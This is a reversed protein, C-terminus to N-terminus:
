DLQNLMYRMGINQHNTIHLKSFKFNPLFQRGRSRKDVPLQLYYLCAVEVKLSEISLMDDVMCPAAEIQILDNEIKFAIYQGYAGESTHLKLDAASHKQLLNESVNTDYKFGSLSFKSSIFIRVTSKGFQATVNPTRLKYSSTSEELIMPTSSSIACKSPIASVDQFGSAPSALDTRNKFEDTAGVDEVPCKHLRGCEFNSCAVEDQMESEDDSLVVRVRKHGVTQQNSTSTSSSKHSAGTPLVEDVHAINRKPLKKNSQLLSILPVDDKFEGRDSKSKGKKVSCSPDSRSNSLCDDGETDTESCCDEAINRGEHKENGSQKLKDILYQLRRAEELNDFRIMHSYHMNELASLQVSPLNAQVAIKVLIGGDVVGLFSSKHRYGEEFADLAGAWNGDSDLVDGINIKALAQGELNNISKYTEWSKTYWKLAKDFNRLKQYSEGIVLFSDSLKEKDCLENAIRKKRKAFERHKLWAFIMSSKEILLDLSANQQLLCRREGPTGRATAMNRALKKLNQEEKQMEAMVKVAKKVTVINEDIQSVLADEDEMSKALDLAKQYCLNAEEYKQVRYHLEGLNIYGKAEGQFHGIRKCIIIDKEIHERAKDWKRLEMYVRGLNHHLRSRGDDDDIVEEEDCIKLGKTLIKHAEELNDLDMELMGINNHADIFEKLFSSKNSPPNEKLTQALRMASKFYKKANRVSYHDDDSSLFIEHYTRGLQTSARQQEVLDNTDKALELHKKQYILADKFNELRLLLEGVSQCTPLLQKEPLYKMSIDYDIRLWKLAEVYEGRNKFIDGILNAWRAEEQRNGEMSANRYARKAASLHPDDRVM